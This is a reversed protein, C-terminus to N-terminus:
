PNIILSLNVLVDMGHVHRGASPNLNANVM